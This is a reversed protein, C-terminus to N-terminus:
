HSPPFLSFKSALLRKATAPFTVPKTSQALALLFENWLAPRKAGPSHVVRHIATRTKDAILLTSKTLRQCYTLSTDSPPSMHWIIHVPNFSDLQLYKWQYHDFASGYLGEARTIKHYAISTTAIAYYIWTEMM